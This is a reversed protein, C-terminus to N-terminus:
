NSQDRERCFLLAPATGGERRGAGHTGFRATETIPRHPRVRRVEIARLRVSLMSSYWLHQSRMESEALEPRSPANVSVYVGLEAVDAIRSIGTYNLTAVAEVIGSSM